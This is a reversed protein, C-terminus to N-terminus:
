AVKWIPRMKRHAVYDIVMGQEIEVIRDSGKIPVWGNEKMRAMLLTVTEPTDKHSDFALTDTNRGDTFTIVLFKKVQARGEDTRRQKAALRRATPGFQKM